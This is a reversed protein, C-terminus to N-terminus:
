GRLSSVERSSSATVDASASPEDPRGTGDRWSADDAALPRRCRPPLLRDAQHDPDRRGPRGGADATIDCGRKGFDSLEFAYAYSLQNLSWYKGITAGPARALLQPEVFIQVNAAFTLILMYIVYPRILPLKISWGMRVPGCGDM